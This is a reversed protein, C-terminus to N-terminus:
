FKWFTTIRVMMEDDPQPLGDVSSYTVWEVNPIISVNKRVKIDYGLIALSSKGESSFPIYSIKEADPNADFMKDYRVIVAGKEGTNFVAFISAIDLDFSDGEEQDRTQRCAQLGVRWDKTRYGLLTRYTVRDTNGPRNEVDGYVEAVFGEKPAFAVSVMIKKHEDTESSNGNGNGLMIHYKVNGEDGASGKLALEIDRSHGFKQLDLPDKELHRYGWFHEPLDWTPSGALGMYLSMGGTKYRLWADKVVPEMKAKTEFDGKNSAEFNLKADFNDNIKHVFALYIRRIWFGNKGELDPDHSQAVWYLDGFVVGKLKTNKVWSPLDDSTAPAALMAALLTSIVLTRM